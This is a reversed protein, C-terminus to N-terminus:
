QRRRFRQWRASAVMLLVIPVLIAAENVPSPCIPPVTPEPPVATATATATVTVTPEPTPTVSVTPSPSASETPEPSPLTNDIDTTMCGNVYVNEGRGWNQGDTIDEFPPWIDFQHEEHGELAEVSVSIGNWHGSKAWHCIFIKTVAEPEVVPPDYPAMGDTRMTWDLLVFM